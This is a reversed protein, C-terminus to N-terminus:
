EDIKQNTMQHTPQNKTQQNNLKNATQNTFLYYLSRAYPNHNGCNHLSWGHWWDARSSKWIDRERECIPHPSRSLRSLFVLPANEMLIWVRWFLVQIIRSCYWVRGFLLKQYKIHWKPPLQYSINLDSLDRSSDCFFINVQMMNKQPSYFFSALPFIDGLLKQFGIWSQGLPIKRRSFLRFIIRLRQLM